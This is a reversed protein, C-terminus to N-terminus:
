SMKSGNPLLYQVPSSFLTTSTLPTKSLTAPRWWTEPATPPGSPSPVGSNQDTSKHRSLPRFVNQSNLSDVENQCDFGQALPRPIGSPINRCGGPKRPAPYVMSRGPALLQM